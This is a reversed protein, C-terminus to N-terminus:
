SLDGLERLIQFIRPKVEEFSNTMFYKPRIKVMEVLKWEPTNRSKDYLINGIRILRPDPSQRGYLGPGRGQLSEKKARQSIPISLRRAYNPAANRPFIAKRPLIDTGYEQIRAYKVGYSGVVVEGGNNDPYMSVEYKISNALAGSKIMGKNSLNSKIKAELLMGIRTLARELSPGVLSTQLKMMLKAIQAEEQM